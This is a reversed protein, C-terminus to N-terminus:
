LLTPDPLCSPLNDLALKSNRYTFMKGKQESNLQVVIKSRVNNGNYKLSQTRALCNLSLSLSLSLIYSFPSLYLYLELFFFSTNLLSTTAIPVFLYTCVLYTFSKIRKDVTGLYLYLSSFGGLWSCNRSQVFIVVSLCCSVLCLCKNMSVLSLCKYCEGAFIRVWVLKETPLALWSPLWEVM